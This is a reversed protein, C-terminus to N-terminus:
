GLLVHRLEAMRDEIDFSRSVLERSRGAMEARKCPHDVLYAIADAAAEASAPPIVLGVVQDQVAEASGGVNTVICPVGCAMAELVSLPLGELHSTLIFASAAQLYPRVDEQFGEFYVSGWLGLANREQLLKTQLPGEGLIICRCSIGQRIVRSVAQLLIDVGKAESLRAACVLLFDDSGIELRARVSEGQMPSPVFHATSVGNHVTVTKYAPFGYNNVLANRVANSVCITKKPLHGTIKLSLLRRTRKGVLRRLWKRPSNGRVPPPLPPPILHQISFRDPVGALLAALSAQLPFAEIWSSCFVAVDPRARRLLRLWDWLSKPAKECQVVVRAQLESDLHQSIIDQGFCAILLHLDPEKLRRLLDLLHRELGGFETTEPLIFLIRKGSSYPARSEQCRANTVPLNQPDLASVVQNDEPVSFGNSVQCNPKRPPLTRLFRRRFLEERSYSFTGELPLRGGHSDLYEQFQVSEHRWPHSTNRIMKDLRRSVTRRFKFHHTVGQVSTGRPESGLPPHHNGEEALETGSTCFFLPFKLIDAKVGMRRYLDASCLPFVHFPDHIEPPTELSGDATLRQLMPAAMVTANALCLHQITTRIDAYPFEVFEDSDVLVIWQNTFRALLADLRIKKQNSDFPGGYTEEITVPYSDKIASLTANEEPVGHVILHFHDVGFRLYYKLWAEILDGDGNVHSLLKLSM